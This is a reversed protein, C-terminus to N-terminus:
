KKYGYYDRLAQDKEKGQLHGIHLSEDMLKQKYEDISKIFRAPVGAYVGNDPLDKTVVAGTGVVVNNGITVGPMITVNDGIYVNNKIVIPKTVELDPIENRFLLTGGDHTIFHCNNTIYVNDGITIIWPESGWSVKGFFVVKGKGSFNVGMKVAYKYPKFCQYYKNKLTRIFSM